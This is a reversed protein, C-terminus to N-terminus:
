MYTASARAPGVPPNAPQPPTIVDRVAKLHNCLITLNKHTAPPTTIIPAMQCTAPKAHANSISASTWGPPQTPTLVKRVIKRGSTRQPQGFPPPRPHRLELSNWVWVTRAIANENPCSKMLEEFRSVSSGFFCIFVKVATLILACTVCAYNM